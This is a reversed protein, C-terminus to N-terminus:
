SVDSLVKCAFCVVTNSSVAAEVAADAATVNNGPSVAVGMASFNASKLEWKITTSQAM